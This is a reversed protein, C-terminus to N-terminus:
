NRYFCLDVQEKLNLTKLVQKELSEFCIPEKVDKNYWTQTAIDFYVNGIGINVYIRQMKNKKTLAKEWYSIRRIKFSTKKTPLPTEVEVKIEVEEGLIFLNTNHQKDAFKQKFAITLYATAITDNIARHANDLSIGHLKCLAELKYSEQGPQFLKALKLTDIVENQVKIGVRDFYYILFRNWDFIANHAVIVSNGIFKHFEPLVKGYVPQGALMENTIGTLEITQKYIKMEPYIFQSFQDVIKGDRVRVGALEIIRGGKQPTLGTTEIDLVVYENLQALLESMKEAEELTKSKKKKKPKAQEKLPLEGTEVDLAFLGGLKTTM